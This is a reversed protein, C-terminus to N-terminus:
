LATNDLLLECINRRFTSDGDEPCFLLGLLFRAALETLRRTSRGILSLRSSFVGFHVIDETFTTLEVNPLCATRNIGPDLCVMPNDTMTM